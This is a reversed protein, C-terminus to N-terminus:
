GERCGNANIPENPDVEPITMLINISTEGPGLDLTREECYLVYFGVHGEVRVHYRGPILGPFRM